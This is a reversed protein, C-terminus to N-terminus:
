AVRGLEISKSSEPSWRQSQRWKPTRTPLRRSKSRDECWRGVRRAHRALPHRPSPCLPHRPRPPCQCTQCCQSSCPPSSWSLCFSISCSFSHSLTKYHKTIHFLTTQKKLHNSNNHQKAKFQEGWNRKIQKSAEPPNTSKIPPKPLHHTPPHTPQAIPQYISQNTGKQTEQNTKYNWSCPFPAQHLISVWLSDRSSLYACFSPLPFVTSSWRYKKLILNTLCEVNHPWTLDITSFEKSIPARYHHFELNLQSLTEDQPHQVPRKRGKWSASSSRTMTSDCPVFSAQDKPLLKFEWFWM